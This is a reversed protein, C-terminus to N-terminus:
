LVICFLVFSTLVFMRRRHVFMRREGRCFPAQLSVKSSQWSKSVTHTSHVFTEDTYIIPRCNVRYKKINRLFQIRAAVIDTREMLLSRNTQSKRWRFGLKKQTHRLHNNGGQYGIKEQLVVQLSLNVFFCILWTIFCFRKKWIGFLHASWSILAKPKSYLYYKWLRVPERRVHFLKKRAIRSM